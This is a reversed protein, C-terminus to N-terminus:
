ALNISAARMDASWFWGMCRNATGNPQTITTGHRIIRGDWAISAGHFLQIAVGNYTKGERKVMVNPLVFFWNSATGPVLEVWVSYGVSGDAVDYHSANGLNTSIAMSCSPSSDGGMAEVPIRNAQNELHKMTPVVTGYKKIGFDLSAKNIETLLGGNALVQTPKTVVFEENGAIKMEGIGYMRGVDGAHQRCNGTVAKLRQSGQVLYDVLCSTNSAAAVQVYSVDSVRGHYDRVTIALVVDGTERQDIILTSMPLDVHHASKVYRRCGYKFAGRGEAKKMGTKYILRADTQDKILVGSVRDPAILPAGSEYDDIQYCSWNSPIDSLSLYVSYCNGISKIFGGTSPQGDARKIRLWSMPLGKLGVQNNAAHHATYFIGSLPLLLIVTSWQNDTGDEKGYTLIPIKDAMQSDCNPKIKKGKGKQRRNLVCEILYATASARCLDLKPEETIMISERPIIKQLWSIPTKGIKKVDGTDCDNGKKNQEVLVMLNNIIEEQENPLVLFGMLVAMQKHSPYSKKGNRQVCPIAMRTMNKRVGEAPSQPKKWKRKGLGAM